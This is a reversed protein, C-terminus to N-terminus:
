IDEESQFGFAPAAYQPDFSVLTGCRFVDNARIVKAVRVVEESDRLRGVLGRTICANLLRNFGWPNSLTRAAVAPEFPPSVALAADLKAHPDRQCLHLSLVLSGMSVGAAVLRERPFPKRVKSVGEPFDGARGAYTIRHGTFPVGGCGHGNVVLGRFGVAALAPLLPRWPRSQSGPRDENLWGLAVLGRDSLVLLERRHNVRPLWRHYLCGVLRQLNAGSSRITTRFYGKVFAEMQVSLFRRLRGSRCVPKRVALVDYVVQASCPPCQLSESKTSVKSHPVVGMMRRM